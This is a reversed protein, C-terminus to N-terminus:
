PRRPKQRAAMWAALVPWVHDPAKKGLVLDLHGWHVEDHWDDFIRLTKDQSGSLDYAARGDQPPLLHDRDGLLVLLPLDTRTWADEFDVRGEAAWRSMEQWVTVSTWDFGDRLREQLIEPELSGPWWGSLPVAYGTADSLGYLKGILQGALQTRVQFRGMIPLERLAHTARTLMAMAPNAQGFRFLAGIGIVGLPRVGARDAGQTVTRTSAGYLVAGGLSHGIWFAPGPLAESARLADTVYDAFREAGQGAERSRGHGRLELNWVDHGKAALWASISRKSSHWSYRNQAFGHVLMVPPLTPGGPLHKRVLALPLEGALKVVEKHLRVRADGHTVQEVEGSWVIEVM